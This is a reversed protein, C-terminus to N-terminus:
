GAYKAFATAYGMHKCLWDVHNATKKDNNRLSRKYSDHFKCTLGFTVLM